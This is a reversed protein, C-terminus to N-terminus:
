VEFLHATSNNLSSTHFKKAPSKLKGELFLNYKMINQGLLASEEYYSFLKGM